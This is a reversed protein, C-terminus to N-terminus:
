DPDRPRNRERLTNEAALRLSETPAERSWRELFANTEPRRSRTLGNTAAERFSDPLTADQILRVLARFVTPSDVSGIAQALGARFAPHLHPDNLHAVARSYDRAGLRSLSQAAFGFVQDAEYDNGSNDPPAPRRAALDILDFLYDVTPKGPLYELAKIWEVRNWPVKGINKRFVKLTRPDGSLALAEFAPALQVGLTELDAGSNGEVLTARYLANRFAPLRFIARAQRIQAPTWRTGIEPWVNVWSRAAMVAHATVEPPGNQIANRVAAIGDTTWPGNGWKTGLPALQLVAWKRVRPSPDAALRIWEPFDKNTWPATFEAAFARIPARPHHLLPKTDFDPASMLREVASRQVAESPDEVGLKMTEVDEVNLIANARVTASPHHALKRLEPDGLEAYNRIAPFAGPVGQRAMAQLIPWAAQPYLVVAKAAVAHDLYRQGDGYRELLIPLFKRDASGLMMLRAAQSRTEEKHRAERILAKRGAPGALLLEADHTLWRADALQVEASGAGYQLRYRPDVPKGQSFLPLLACAVALSPLGM